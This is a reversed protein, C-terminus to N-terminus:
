VEAGPALRDAPMWLEAAEFPAPAAALVDALPPVALAVVDHVRLVRDVVECVVIMRPEDVVALRRLDGRAIMEDIVFLWGEDRAAFADSVPARRRLLDRLAPVDAAALRRGRGRPGARALRFRHQPVVRFGLPEYLWPQDTHLKAAGHRADVHALAERMATRFHGRRRFAPDTCVAHVGALCVDRGALRTPLDLVGVHAVIRGEERAVFPTTIEDWRWGLAAAVALRRAIGPWTADLLAHLAARTTADAYLPHVDAPAM